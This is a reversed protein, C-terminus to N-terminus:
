LTLENWAAGISHVFLTGVIGVVNRAADPSIM